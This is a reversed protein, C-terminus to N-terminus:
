HANQTISAGSVVLGVTLGISLICKSLLSIILWGETAQRELALLM